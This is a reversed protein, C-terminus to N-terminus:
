ELLLNDWNQLVIDISPLICRHCMLRGKGNANALCDCVQCELPDSLEAISKGMMTSAKKVTTRKGNELRDLDFASGGSEQALTSLLNKPDKLQRRLDQDMGSATVVSDKTFGYLKSTLRIRAPSGKLRLELPTLLHLKIGQEALMTMSDGYTRSSLAGTADCSILVFTKIVAPRFHLRAAYQLADFTDGGNGDTRLNAMATPMKGVDNFIRSGSTFIHPKALEELGGFGILAFRNDRLGKSVLSRDVFYPLDDLQVNQLCQSQQVIFVVDSTQPVNGEIQTSEGHRLAERNLSCQVCAAPMWLEVQARRCQEIYAAASPCVGTRKDPKNKLDEMDRLCMEVYPKPDISSFCPMLPSTEANGFM